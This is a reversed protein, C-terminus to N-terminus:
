FATITIDPVESLFSKMIIYIQATGIQPGEGLNSAQAQFSEIYKPTYM